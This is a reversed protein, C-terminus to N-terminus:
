LSFDPIDQMWDAIQDPHFCDQLLQYQRIRYEILNRYAGRSASGLKASADDWHSVSFEIEHHVFESILRKTYPPPTNLPMAFGGRDLTVCPPSPFHYEYSGAEFQTPRYLRPVASSPYKLLMLWTFDTTVQLGNVEVWGTPSHWVGADAFDNFDAAWVPHFPAILRYENQVELFREVFERKRTSDALPALKEDVAQFNPFGASGTALADFLRARARVFSLTTSQAYTSIRRLAKSVNCVHLLERSAAVRNNQNQPKADFTQDPELAIIQRRYADLADILAEV